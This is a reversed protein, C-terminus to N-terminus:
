DVHHSQNLSENTKYNLVVRIVIIKAQSTLFSKRQLLITLLAIGNIPKLITYKRQSRVTLIRGPDPSWPRVGVVISPWDMLITM